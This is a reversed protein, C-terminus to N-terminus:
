YALIELRMSSVNLSTTADHAGFLHRFNFSQESFDLRHIRELSVVDKTGTLDSVGTFWTLFIPSGKSRERFLPWAKSAGAVWWVWLRPYRIAVENWHKCVQRFSFTEPAFDADCDPGTRAGLFPNEMGIGISSEVVYRFVM